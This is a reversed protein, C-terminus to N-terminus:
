EKHTPPPSSGSIGRQPLSINFGVNQQKPARPQDGASAELPTRLASRSPTCAWLSTWPVEPPLPPDGGPQSLSLPTAHHGVTGTSVTVVVSLAASTGAVEQCLADQDDVPASV